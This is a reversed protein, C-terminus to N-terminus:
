LKTEAFQATSSFSVLLDKPCFFPLLQKSLALLRKADGSEAIDLGTFLGAPHLKRSQDFPVANMLRLWEEIQKAHKSINLLRTKNEPTFMDFDAERAMARVAPHTVFEICIPLVQNIWPLLPAFAALDEFLFPLEYQGAEVAEQTAASASPEEGSDAASAAVNVDQAADTEAFDGLLDLIPLVSDLLDAHQTIWNKSENWYAMGDPAPEASPFRAALTRLVMDFEADQALKKVVEFLKIVVPKIRFIIPLFQLWKLLENTAAASASEQSSFASASASAANFSMSAQQQLQQRLAPRFLAHYELAATRGKAEVARLAAVGKESLKKLPQAQQLAESAQEPEQIHILVDLVSPIQFDTSEPM